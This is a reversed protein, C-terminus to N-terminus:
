KLKKKLLKNVYETQKKLGAVELHVMLFRNNKLSPNKLLMEEIKKSDM